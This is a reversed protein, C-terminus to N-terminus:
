KGSVFIMDTNCNFVNFNYITNGKWFFLGWAMAVGKLKKTVSRSEIEKWAKPSGSQQQPRPTQVVSRLRNQQSAQRGDTHPTPASSFGTQFLEDYLDDESDSPNVLLEAEM